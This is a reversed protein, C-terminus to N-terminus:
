NEDNVVVSPRRCLPCSNSVQLWRVLCHSHLIHSCKMKIVEDEGIIGDMCIACCVEDEGLIYRMRELRRPICVYDVIHLSVGLTETTRLQDAADISLRESIGQVYDVDTIRFRDLLNGIELKIQEATSSYNLELEVSDFKDTFQINGTMDIRAQEVNLLIKYWPKSNSDTPYRGVYMQYEIPLREVTSSSNSCDIAIIEMAM